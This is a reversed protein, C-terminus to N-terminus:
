LISIDYAKNGPGHVVFCWLFGVIRRLGKSFWVFPTFANSPSGFFAIRVKDRGMITAITTCVNYLRMLRIQTEPRPVSAAAATPNANGNSNMPVAIAVPSPTPPPEAIELFIPAFSLFPPSIAATWVSM